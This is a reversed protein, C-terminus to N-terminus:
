NKWTATIVEGNFTRQDLTECLIKCDSESELKVTFTGGSRELELIEVGKCLRTMFGELEAVSTPQPVNHLNVTLKKSKEAFKKESLTEKKSPSNSYHSKKSRNKNEQTTRKPSKEPNVCTAEFSSATADRASSDTDGDSAAATLEEAYYSSIGHVNESFSSDSSVSDHDDDNNELSLEVQSSNQRNEQSSSTNQPLQQKNKRGGRRRRRRRRRAPQQEQKPQQSVDLPEKKEDNQTKRPPKPRVRIKHGFRFTKNMKEVCTEMQEQTNFVVEGCGRKKTLYARKVGQCENNFCDKLMKGTVFDPLCSVTVSCVAKRRKNAAGSGVSEGDTTVSTADPQEKTSDYPLYNRGNEKSGLGSSASSMSNCSSYRNQTDLWSEVKESTAVERSGVLSPSFHSGSETIVKRCTTNDERLSKRGEIKIAYYNSEGDGSFVSVATGKQKALPSRHNLSEAEEGVCLDATKGSTRLINQQQGSIERKHQELIEPRQQEGFTIQNKQEVLFRLKQQRDLLEEDRVRENLEQKRQEELLDQELLERRRQRELLKQEHQKILIEQQREQELLERELQKELLEQKMQVELLQQEHQQKLIEERRKQELIKQEHLQEQLERKREGELLQQKHQLELLEQRRQQELLERIREQELMIKEKQQVMPMQSQQELLERGSERECYSEQPRNHIESESTERELVNKEWM